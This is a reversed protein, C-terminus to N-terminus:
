GKKEAPTAATLVAMTVVTPVKKFSKAAKVFKSLSDEISVAAAIMTEIAQEAVDNQLDFTQAFATVVSQKEETDLYNWVKLNSLLPKITALMGPATVVLDIIESGSLKGDSLATTLKGSFNGIGAAASIFAAFIPQLNEPITAKAM